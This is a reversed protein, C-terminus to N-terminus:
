AFTGTHARRHGPLARRLAATIHRMEIEGLQQHIPLALVSDKLWRAEPHDAWDFARHYGAWWSIAGIGMENLRRCVAERDSMAVPLCLPCVGAPLEPYLPRVDSAEQLAGCLMAYNARRRRIVTERCTRRLLCRTVRSATLNEIARDYYYSAPMEPLGASTLLVEQSRAGRSRVAQEPLLRYVGVRDCLRLVSRKVLPLMANATSRLLPKQGLDGEWAEDAPVTLAGGDPVALSKPFSYIVADGLRGLPHGQPDSFLSLACDEIVRIGRSRCFEVLTEVPQPWGFYHTVYVCRTRGTVRRRLDDMDLKAQRDVRYFSVTLGYALFPDIESGCNYAPVLIEDGSGWGWHRCLRGLGCRAKYTYVIRRDGIVGLPDRDNPRRLFDGVSLGPMGCYRRPDQSDARVKAPRPTVADSSKQQSCGLLM